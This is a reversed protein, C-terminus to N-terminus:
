GPPTVVNDVVAALMRDQRAVYNIANEIASGDNKYRDSGHSTWWLQPRGVFKSLAAQSVGKLVRRVASGDPPCDTVVVHVHNAMVAARLIRWGRATAADALAQAAVRAEASSLSVPPQALLERAKDRTFADGPAVPTGPTNQRPIHGHPDLRTNSVHGRPDGPLWAGYTTWTILLAPPM